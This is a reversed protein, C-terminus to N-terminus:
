NGGRRESPNESCLQPASPSPPPFSPSSPSRLFSFSCLHDLSALSLPFSLTLPQFWSLLPCLPSSLGLASESKAWNRLRVELAPGRSPRPSPRATEQLFSAPPARAAVATKSEGLCQPPKKLDRCRMLNRRTRTVKSTQRGSSRSIRVSSPPMSQAGNWTRLWRRRWQQCPHGQLWLRRRRRRRRRVRRPLRQARMQSSPLPRVSPRVSSPSFLALSLYKAASRRTWGAPLSPPQGAEFNRAAMLHWRWAAQM